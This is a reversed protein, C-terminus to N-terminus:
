DGYQDFVGVGLELIRQYFEHDGGTFSVAPDDAGGSNYAGSSGAASATGSPTSDALLASPLVTALAILLGLFCIMKRKM